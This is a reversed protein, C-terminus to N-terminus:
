DRRVHLTRGEGKPEYLGDDGPRLVRLVRPGHRLMFDEGRSSAPRRSRRWSTAFPRPTPRSSRARLRGRGGRSTSLGPRGSPTRSRTTSRRAGGGPRTAFYPAGVPMIMFEQLDVNNDAHVGGNLINMMPVPLTHANPGGLYAYLPLGVSSAAARAVALSCGLIANAGLRGKNPTGDPSSCPRTSGASTPPRAAWAAGRLAGRQRASRGADRGQRSLPGQRRRSARGGRVRRDLRRLPRMRAGAAATPSRSRAEVTPNGRSDLVERGHVKSIKSM